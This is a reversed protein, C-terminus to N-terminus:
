AIVIAILVLIIFDRSMLATLQGVSAGLVKRISVEKNRQEAMFASLAFLGLCAIGIALASFSTFIHEMRQVDAYMNAFEEDLFSYRIPQAPAYKKWVTSVAPILSKMAAGNAKISVIS